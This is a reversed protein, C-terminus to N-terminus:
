LADPDLATGRQRERDRDRMSERERRKRERGSVMDSENKGSNDGEVGGVRSMFPVGGARCLRQGM